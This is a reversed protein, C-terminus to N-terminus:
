PVARAARELAAADADDFAIEDVPGLWLCARAGRLGALVGKLRAVLADDLTEAAVVVTLYPADTARSDQVAIDVGELGALRAQTAVPDLDALMGTPRLRILFRTPATASM